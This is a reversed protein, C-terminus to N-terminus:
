LARKFEKELQDESIAMMTPRGHPCNFPNICKGLRSLLTRCELEDLRHNFRISSHCAATAIRDKRIDLQDMKTDTLIEEILDNIFSDEDNDVLWLPVERIVVSNNSFPELEIGITKFVENLKDLQQYQAPTLEVILPVLLPQTEIKNNEIERCIEEYRCREMAAHQDVIYLNNEDCALIYNGHLQALYRFREIVM